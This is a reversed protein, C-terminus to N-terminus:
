SPSSHVIASAEGAPAEDDRGPLERMRPVPSPILWLVGLLAGATAIWLAPRLGLATGLYGGTLAGIPRIGYQDGFLSVSQGTWFRRFPRDRLLEPVADSVRAALSM